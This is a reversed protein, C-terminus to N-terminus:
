SSPKRLSRVKETHRATVPDDSDLFPWHREELARLREGAYNAQNLDKDRVAQRRLQEYHAAMKRAIGQMEREYGRRSMSFRRRHNGITVDEGALCFGSPSLGLVLAIALTRRVDLRMTVEM